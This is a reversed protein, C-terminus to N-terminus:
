DIYFKNPLEFSEVDNYKPYDWVALQAVDYYGLKQRYNSDNMYNYMWITYADAYNNSHLWDTLSHSLPYVRNGDIYVQVRDYNAGISGSHTVTYAVHHWASDWSPSIIDGSGNIVLQGWAWGGTSYGYLCANSNSIMLKCANPGLGATDRVWESSESTRIYYEVTFGTSSDVIDALSYATSSVLSGTDNFRAYPVANGFTSSRQINFDTPLGTEVSTFVSADAAKGFRYGDQFYDLIVCHKPLIEPVDIEETEWGGWNMVGAEASYLSSPGQPLSPIVDVANVAEQVARPTIATTTSTSLADDLAPVDASKVYTQDIANGDVDREARKAYLGHGNFGKWLQTDNDPISM